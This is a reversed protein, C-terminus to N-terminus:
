CCPVATGIQLGLKGLRVVSVTFGVVASSWQVAAHSLVLFHASLCVACISTCTCLRRRRRRRHYYHKQFHVGQQGIVQSVSLSSGFECLEM